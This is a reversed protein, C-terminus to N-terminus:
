VKTLPRKSNERHEKGKWKRTTFSPMYLQLKPAIVYWISNVNKDHDRAVIHSFLMVAAAKTSKYVKQFNQSM